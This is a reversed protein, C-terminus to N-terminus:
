SGRIMTVVLDSILLTTSINSAPVSSYRIFGNSLSMSTSFSRQSRMWPLQPKPLIWTITTSSEDTTRRISEEARRSSGRKSTDSAALPRMASALTLRQGGSATTSSKFMGPM